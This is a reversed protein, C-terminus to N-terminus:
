EPRAVHPLSEVLIDNGDSDRRYFWMTGAEVEGSLYAMMPERMVRVSLGDLKRFADPIPLFRPELVIGDPDAAGLEGAWDGVEFVFATLQYGPGPGLGEHLQQPNRNDLQVVYALHRITLVRLGTEERVERELAETLLEGNEVVGGPISWSPAPDNPSGQRVLLVEEKRRIVAAVVQHNPRKKSIERAGKAVSVILQRRRHQHSWAPPGITM